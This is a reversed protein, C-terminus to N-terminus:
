LGSLNEAPPTQRPLFLSFVCGQGEASRLRLYGGQACAIQRALYLGVGVGETDAAARGRCFRGFVRAQEEEPISPGTDAVSLCCFSEYVQVRVMVQGGAPTYKVANDLLNFLAEATWRADLVAPCDGPEAQLRVGKRDAAPRAQAVAREIVPRVTGPAPTVALVGTELRSLKVLAEILFRLKETQRALGDALVRAPPPLPQEALLQADLLLNATPTRTQHAIDGVLEKLRDKERALQGAALGSATLYRAMRNELASAASEDFAGPDFRGALADDLMRELRDLTRRTQRRSQWAAALGAGALVLAAAVAWGAPTM